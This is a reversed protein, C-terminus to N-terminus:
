INNWWALAEPRLTMIDGFTYTDNRIKELQLIRQKGRQLGLQYTDPWSEAFTPRTKLQVLIDYLAGKDITHLIEDVWPDLVDRPLALPSM